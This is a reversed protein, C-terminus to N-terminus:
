SKEDRRSPPRNAAVDLDERTRLEASGPMETLRTPDAVAYTLRPPKRDLGVPPAAASAVGVLRDVPSVVGRGGRNLVHTYIMTTRVDRHLWRPEVRNTPHHAAIAEM